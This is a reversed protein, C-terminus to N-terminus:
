AFHEQRLHDLGGAHHLLSNSHKQRVHFFFLAQIATFTALTGTLYQHGSHLAVNVVDALVNDAHNEGTVIVLDDIKAHHHRRLFNEIRSASFIDINDAEGAEDCWREILHHMHSSFHLTFAEVHRQQDTASRGAAHMSGHFDMRTILLSLRDVHDIGATRHTNNGIQQRRFVLASINIADTLFIGLNRRSVGAILCFLLTQWQSTRTFIGVLQVPVGVCRWLRCEKACFCELVVIECLNRAIDVPRWEELCPLHLATVRSNKFIFLLTLCRTLKPRIRLSHEHLDDILLPKRRTAYDTEPRGIRHAIINTEKGIFAALFFECGEERQTLLQGLTITTRIDSHGIKNCGGIATLLVIDTAEDDRRTNLFDCNGFTELPRIVVVRGNEHLCQSVAERFGKGFQHMLANAVLEPAIRRTFIQRIIIQDVLTICTDTRCWTIRRLRVVGFLLGQEFQQICCRLGADFQRFAIGHPRTRGHRAKIDAM